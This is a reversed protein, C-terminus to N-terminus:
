AVGGQAQPTDAGGVPRLQKALWDWEREPWAPMGRVRKGVASDPPTCSTGHCVVMPGEGVAGPATAEARAGTTTSGPSHVVLTRAGSRGQWRGGCWPCLADLVQGDVIEGVAAAVRRVVPGLVGAAWPVTRADAEDAATLWARAGLLWPRPDAWPSEAHPPRDVGATQTITSGLDEAASVVLALLDLMDVDIPVAHQGPGQVWGPQRREALEARAQASSADVSEASRARRSSPLARRRRSPEVGITVLDPWAEVLYDLHELVRRASDTLPSTM